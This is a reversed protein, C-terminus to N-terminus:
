FNKSEANDMMFAALREHFLVGFASVGWAATRSAAPFWISLIFFDLGLPLSYFTDVM